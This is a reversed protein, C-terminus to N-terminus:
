ETRQLTVIMRTGRGDGVPSECEIRGGIEDLRKQVIALGLGTGRPKTTFFPDFIRGRAEAPIGPGNDEVALLVSGERGAISLRVEGKEPVAELANVLLNVVIDHLAEGSGAVRCDGPASEFTLTVGRREAEHKLLNVIDDGLAILDTAHSSQAGRVVPRAYQLLQSLKQSLRDIETIALGCDKRASEPLEPNEQQVQLLTKMSSLPNKLNHSISAAMQGLAALRQREALERELRVKEHILRCLDLAAPLQEALFELAAHTEGSLVQGHYRAELAGIEAGGSRLAVRHVEGSAADPLSAPSFGPAVDPAADPPVDRLTIRVGALGLTEGIRTEAFQLLRDLEGARAAQQIEAILHQLNEAERRFARELVRGVRRQLPELFLVFVFLLISVTAEPPIGLPELWVSVRSALTLYILALFAVVVSYVLSRQIGTGQLSQRVLHYTVFGGALVPVLLLLVLLLQFLDDVAARGRMSVALSLLGALVAMGALIRGLRLHAANMAHRALRQQLGAAAFLAAALWIGFAFRWGPASVAELADFLTRTWFEGLFVFFFYAAPVYFLAVGAAWRPRKGEARAVFEVPAHALLPPLIALGVASLSFALLMTSVPPSSYHITANMGLLGGAYFLFLSIGAFFLLSEPLRPKRLGALLVVLFLYLLAGATFAFLQIYFLWQM